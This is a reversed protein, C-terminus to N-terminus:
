STVAVHDRGAVGRETRQWWGSATLLDRVAAPSRALGFCVLPAYLCGWYQNFPQGVIAFVMLYAAMTLGARQGAPTNWSALGLVALVLCVASLWQPVVLLYANMQATSIVFGAGGLQLWGEDHAHATADILPSVQWIHVAYFLAYAAMGATWGAVLRWRRNSADLLWCVVCYLAALERFFLAAIGAVIGLRERGIGFAAISLAILIGSWLVPMVFLDGVLTLMLVGTLALATILAQRTSAEREVWVFGALILLGALGALLAKGIAANPLRGILWMPLPTRWNFISRTPYGRDSLETAAAAYYGEGAAIRDVEARYLQVDGPRDRSTDAFGSGLSSFTIAIGAILALAVVLLVSRAAVPSLRAFTTPSPEKSSSM